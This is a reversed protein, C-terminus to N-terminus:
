HVECSTQVCSTSGTQVTFCSYRPFRERQSVHVHVSEEMSHGINHSGVINIYGGLIVQIRDCRPENLHPFSDIHCNQCFKIEYLYCDISGSKRLFPCAYPTMKCANLSHQGRTLNNIEYANNLQLGIMNGNNEM